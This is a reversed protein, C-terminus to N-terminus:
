GHHRPATLPPAAPFCGGAASGPAHKCRSRCRPAGRGRRPPQLQRWSQKLSCFPRRRSTGTGVSSGGTSTQGRAESSKAGAPLGRLWPIAGASPPRPPPSGFTQAGGPRLHRSPRPLQPQPPSQARHSWCGRACSAAVGALGPRSGRWRQAAAAAEGGGGGGPVAGATGVTSGARRDGVDRKNKGKGSPTWGPRAAPPAARGARCDECRVSGLFAAPAPLPSPALGAPLPRAAAPRGCRPPLRCPGTGAARFTLM